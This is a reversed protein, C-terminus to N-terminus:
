DHFYENQYHHYLHTIAYVQIALLTEPEDCGYHWYQALRASSQSISQTNILDAGLWSGKTSLDSITKLLNHVNTEHLYYLVGELLWISPINTQYGAAILKTSWPQTLDVSLSHRHCLAQHNELVSEKYQLVEPQDLEYLHTDPHWALRFARTDMGAGLIVVQSKQGAHSMLFDDFFRTRVAVFPRGNDQYEKATPTTQVITEEGALLAALPDEILRDPRQTEIARVAAMIRSSFGVADKIESM